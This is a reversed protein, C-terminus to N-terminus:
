RPKAAVMMGALPFHIWTAAVTEGAATLLERYAALQGQCSAAKAECHERRIPTRDHDIIIAEGNPLQLLLDITGNWTGGAARPGTAPIEVHWVAGPYTADVWDQFREGTAVLVSPALLGTVYFAGLCREAVRERGSEDLSRMSPLAALYSHVANGIAAYHSEDAGSPFHSSGALTQAELTTGTEQAVASSPSHFRVDYQGRTEPTPTSIWREQQRAPIQCDQLIDANLRRLVFETDIGDLSHEGVPLAPDLLTDVATLQDLWDCKGERHAFVLKHKARTCGVYLLRLSEAAERSERETGEESALADAELGSGTRLGGNMGDTRGFPWTWARLTRGALPGADDEGGGTVAPSWMDPDFRSNLGSLVVVPWELGKAGHFTLINVADHGLPPYRIDLGENELRELCLILGTLTAARGEDIALDEYERAHQMISDLNSYRRAPDGWRHVLKPLNLAEIVQQVVFAPSLVKRNITELGALREDGPWPIRQRAGTDPERDQEKRLAKLRET